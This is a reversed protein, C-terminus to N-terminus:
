GHVQKNRAALWEADSMKDATRPDRPDLVTGPDTGDVPNAPPEPANSAKKREAAAKALEKGIRTELKTMERMQNTPSMAAIKAAEEKNQSLYDGVHFGVESEPDAIFVAMEPSIKLDEAHLREKFGPHDVDFAEVRADFRDQQVQAETKATDRKSEEAMQKRALKAGEEILYKNFAQEDYEFDKLTKLPEPKDEPKPDDGPDAPPQKQQEELKRKLERNEFALEEIRKAKKDAPEDDPNPESDGEAPPPSDGDKAKDKDADPAPEDDGEPPILHGMHPNFSLEPEAGPAANAAEGNDVSAPDPNNM